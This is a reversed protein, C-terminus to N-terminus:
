SFVFCFVFGQDVDLLASVFFSAIKQCVCVYM